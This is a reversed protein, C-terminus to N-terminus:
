KKGHAVTKNAIMMIKPVSLPYAPINVAKSNRPVDNDHQARRREDEKAVATQMAEEHVEDLRLPPMNVSIKNAQYEAFVTAFYRVRSTCARAINM